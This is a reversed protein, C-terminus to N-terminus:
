PNMQYLLFFIIPLPMRKIWHEVILVLSTEQGPNVFKLYVQRLMLHWNVLECALYPSLVKRNIFNRKQSQLWDNLFIYFPNKYPVPSNAWTPVLVGTKHPNLFSDMTFSISYNGNAKLHPLSQFFCSVTTIVTMFLYWVDQEVLARSALLFNLFFSQLLLSAEHCIETVLPLDARIQKVLTPTLLSNLACSRTFVRSVAPTYYNTPELHAEADKMIHQRFEKEEDDLEDLVSQLEEYGQLVTSTESCSGVNANKPSSPPPGTGSGKQPMLNSKSSAPPPETGSEMMKFKSSAPPPETGTIMPKGQPPASPPRLGSDEVKSIEVVEGVVLTQISIADRNHEQINTTITDTNQSFFVSM